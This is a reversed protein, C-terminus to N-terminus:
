GLIDNIWRRLDVEKESELVNNLLRKTNKNGTLM